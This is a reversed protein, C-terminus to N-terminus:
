QEGSFRPPGPSKNHGILHLSTYSRLCPTLLGYNRGKSSPIDKSALQLWKVARVGGRQSSPCTLLWTHYWLDTISASLHSTFELGAQAVDRTEPWDLWHSRHDWRSCFHVASSHRWEQRISGCCVSSINEWEMKPVTLGCMSSTIKPLFLLSM